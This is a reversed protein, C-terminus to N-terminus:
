KKKGPTDELLQKDLKAVENYPNLQSIEELIEVYTEQPLHKELVDFFISVDYKYQIQLKKSFHHNTSELFHQVVKQNTGGQKTLIKNVLMETKEADAFEFADSTAQSLEKNAKTPRNVLDYMASKKVRSLAVSVDYLNGRSIYYAISDIHKDTIKSQDRVFPDGKNITRRAKELAEEDVPKKRAM